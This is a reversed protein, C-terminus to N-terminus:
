IHKYYFMQLTNNFTKLCINGEIHIYYKKFTKKVHIIIINNCRYQRGSKLIGM